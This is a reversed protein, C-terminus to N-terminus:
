KPPEPLPRWHTTEEPPWDDGRSDWRGGTWWAEFVGRSKDAFDRVVLARAGVEPLREEVSVWGDACAECPRTRKADCRACIEVILGDANDGYTTVEVWEHPKNERCVTAAQGFAGGGATAVQILQLAADRLADVQGWDGATAAALIREYERRAEAFDQSTVAALAAADFRALWEARKSPAAEAYFRDADACGYAECSLADELLAAFVERPTESM